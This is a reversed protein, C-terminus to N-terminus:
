PQSRRGTRSVLARTEIAAQLKKLASYLAAREQSDLLALLRGQAERVRPMLRRALTRGTPTCAVVLRRGNSPDGSVRLLGRQELTRLMRSAYAKDLALAVCLDRLLMPPEVALRALMRWETASLGHERAYDASIEQHISQAVRTLLVGPYDELPLDVPM